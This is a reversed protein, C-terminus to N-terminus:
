GLFECKIRAHATTRTRTRHHTHTHSLFFSGLTIESFEIKADDLHLMAVDPM